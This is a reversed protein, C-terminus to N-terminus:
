GGLGPAQSPLLPRAHTLKSPGNPGCRARDWVGGLEGAVPKQLYLQLHSVKSLVAANFDGDEGEVGGSLQLHEYTLM